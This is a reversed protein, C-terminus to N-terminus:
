NVFVALVHNEPVRKGSNDYNQGAKQLTSPICDNEWIWGALDATKTGDKIQYTNLKLNYELDSIPIPDLFIHIGREKRKVSNMTNIQDQTIEIEKPENSLYHFREM